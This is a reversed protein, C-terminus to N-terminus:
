GNGSSKSSCYRRREGHRADDDECPVGAHVTYTCMIRNVRYLEFFSDLNMTVASVRVGLLVQNRFSTRLKGTGERPNLTLMQGIQRSIVRAIGIDEDNFSVNSM